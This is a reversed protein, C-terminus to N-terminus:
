EKYNQNFKLSFFEKIEPTMRIYLYGSIKEGKREFEGSVKVYDYNEGYWMIRSVISMGKKNDIDSYITIYGKPKALLSPNDLSNGLVEGKKLEKYMLKIENRNTLIESDDPTIYDTLTYGMTKKYATYPLYTVHDQEFLFPNFFYTNYNYIEKGIFIVLVILLLMIFKKFM